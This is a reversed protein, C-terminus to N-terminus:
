AYIYTFTSAPVTRYHVVGIGGAYNMESIRVKKGGSLVSEVVVVHGPQVGIAGPAPQSGTRYGAAQASAIWAYGGNGWMNGINPKRNKVYWTCTGWVYTNGKSSSARPATQTSVARGSSRVNTFTATAAEVPQPEPTSIFELAASKLEAYHDTLKAKSKKIKIVTGPVITNPDTIANRAVIDEVKVHNTKAISTLTDGERVVIETIQPEPKTEPKTTISSVAVVTDVDTPEAAHANHGGFVTVAAFLALGMVSKPFRM